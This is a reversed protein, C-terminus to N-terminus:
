LEKERLNFDNTRSGVNTRSWLRRFKLPNKIPRMIQGSRRKKLGEMGMGMRGETALTGEIHSTVAARRAELQTILTEKVVEGLGQGKSETERRPCAIKELPNISVVLLTKDDYSGPTPWECLLSNLVYNWHNHDSHALLTLLSRGFTERGEIDDAIGDTMLLFAGLDEQVPLLTEELKFVNLANRYSLSFTTNQFEKRTELFTELTQELPVSIILGDGIQGRILRTPTFAVFALTSDFDPYSEGFHSRWAQLLTFKLQHLNRDTPSSPKMLLYDATYEVALSVAWRAGEQSFPKSGLGDAIAAAVLDRTVFIAYADQNPLGSKEHGIGKVSSVGWCVPWSFNNNDMIGEQKL